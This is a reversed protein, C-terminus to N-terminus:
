YCTWCLCHQQAIGASVRMKSLMRQAHPDRCGRHVLLALAARLVQLERDALQASAVGLVAEEAKLWSSSWGALQMLASTVSAAGGIANSLLSQVAGARDEVSGPSDRCLLVWQLFVVVPCCRAANSVTLWLLELGQCDIWGVRVLSLHLLCLM